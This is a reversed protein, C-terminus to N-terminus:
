NQFAQIPILITVLCTSAPLTCFTGDIHDLNELKEDLFQSNYYKDGLVRIFNLKNTTNMHKEFLRNSLIFVIWFQPPLNKQCSFGYFPIIIIIM